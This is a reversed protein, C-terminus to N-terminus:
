PYAYRKPKYKMKYNPDYSPSFPRGIANLCPAVKKAAKPKSVRYGNAECLAIAETISM